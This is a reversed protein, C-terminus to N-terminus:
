SNLRTLWDNIQLGPTLSPTSTVPTITNSAAIQFDAVEEVVPKNITTTEVPTEKVIHPESKVLKLNNVPENVPQVVPKNVITKVAETQTNNITTKAQKEVVNATTEAKTAATSTQAQTGNFTQAQMKQAETYDVFNKPDELDKMAKMLGIKSAKKQLKTAWVELAIAGPITIAMSSVGAAVPNLRLLSGIALGFFSGAVGLFPAIVQAVMSTGAEVDEAYRQSFEDLNDFIRFTKDQLKKAQDLQDASVNVKKLADRLKQEEKGQTKKYNEYEKFDKKAAWFFGVGEKLKGFLSKKTEPEATVNQVSQMQADTYHVFNKPDQLLEQKAKFRGVRAAEKQLKTSYMAAVFFMAASTIPVAYKKIPGLFRAKDAVVKTKELLWALGSLVTGAAAGGTLGVAMMSNTAMEVNESYEQSAIDIKNVTRFLIDQHAKAIDIQNQSIDTQFLKIREKDEVSAQKLWESYAKKDKLLSKITSIVEGINNIPNLASKEKDTPEPLTKALEKAAAIQEPTYVVFNIPDKLETERSQYRAIRSAQKQLSSAYVTAGMTSLLMTVIPLVGLAMYAATSKGKMAKYLMLPLSGVGMGALPVLGMAQETAMEVDEAKNESYDDMVNIADVVTRGYSGAIDLQDQPLQINNHLAQRRAEKDRQEKVWGEYPKYNSRVEKITNVFEIMITPPRKYTCTFINKHSLM